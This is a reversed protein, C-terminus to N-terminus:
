DDPYDDLDPWTWFCDCLCGDGGCLMHYGNQCEECEGESVQSGEVRLRFSGERASSPRM